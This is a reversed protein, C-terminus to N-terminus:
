KSHERTRSFRNTRQNAVNVGGTGALNPSDRVVEYERQVNRGNHLTKPKIGDIQCRVSTKSTVLQRNNTFQNFLVSIKEHLFPIGVETALLSTMATSTEQESSFKVTTRSSPRVTDTGNTHNGRSNFPVSFCLFSHSNM